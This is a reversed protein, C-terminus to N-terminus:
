LFLKALLSPGHGIQQTLKRRLNSIVQYSVAAPQTQTASAAFDGDQVGVDSTKRLHRVVHLRVVRQLHQVIIQLNQNRHNERVVSRNVFKKPISDQGDESARFRIWLVM